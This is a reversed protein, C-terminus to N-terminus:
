ANVYERGQTREQTQGMDTVTCDITVMGATRFPHELTYKNDQESFDSKSYTTETGNTPSFTLDITSLQVPNGSSDKAVVTVNKDDGVDIQGDSVDITVGM